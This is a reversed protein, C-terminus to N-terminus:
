YLSFNFSLNAKLSFSFVICAFPGVGRNIPLALRGLHPWLQGAHETMNPGRKSAKRCLKLM